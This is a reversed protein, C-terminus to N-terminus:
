GPVTLPVCWDDIDHCSSIQGAPSSDLLPMAASVPLSSRLFFTHQSSLILLSFGVITLIVGLIRTCNGGRSLTKYHGQRILLRSPSIFPCLKPKIWDRALGTRARGSLEGGDDSREAGVDNVLRVHKRSTGWM